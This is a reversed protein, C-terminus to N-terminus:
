RVPKADQKELIGVASDTIPACQIDLAILTDPKEAAFCLREHATTPTNDTPFLELTNERLEWAGIQDPTSLPENKLYTRRWTFSNDARLTLTSEIGGCDACPLVGQYVGAIEGQQDVASVASTEMIGTSEATEPLNCAVLGGTLLGLLFLKEM